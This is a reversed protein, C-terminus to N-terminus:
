HRRENHMRAIRSKPLIVNNEMKEIDVGIKREFIKSVTKRGPIPALNSKIARPPETIPEIDGAGLPPLGGGSVTDAATLAYVACDFFHNETRGPKKSWKNVTRGNATEPVFTEATLHDVFVIHKLMDDGYLTLGREAAGLLIKQNLVDKWYYTNILIYRSMTKNKTTPYYWNNGRRRGTRKTYESIPKKSAPIGTGISMEVFGRPVTNIAKVVVEPMYGGDCFVKEIRHGIGNCETLTLEYLKSFLDKLGDYIKTESPYMSSLKVNPNAATFSGHQEPVTGYGVVSTSGDQTTALITYFLIEDGVDVGCTIRDTFLPAEYKKLDNTKFDSYKALKADIYDEEDKPANQYESLFADMGKDAIANLAAHIASVENAPDFNHPNGVEAGEELEARHTIYYETTRKRIEVINYKEQRLLKRFGVYKDVAERNTPFKYLAKGRVSTWSKLITDALDNPKIVTCAFVAALTVDKGGLGLCDANIIDLRNKTQTASAASKRTQCDDFLVFDPRLIEGTPTIYQMGRIAGLLSRSEIRAQSCFELKESDNYVYPFSIVSGVSIMTPVQNSMQGKAKGPTRALANFYFAAEPYYRALGESTDLIMYVDNQFSKKESGTAVIPVFYRRRGTLVAWLAAHKAISTKGDGRQLAIAAQGGYELCEELMNIYKIHDESFPRYFANPSITKCFLELSNYMERKLPMDEESCPTHSGVERGLLARKKSDFDRLKRKKIAHEESKFKWGGASSDILRTEVTKEQGDKDKYTNFVTKQSKAEARSRRTKAPEVYEELVIDDLLDAVVELTDGSFTIQKKMGIIYM